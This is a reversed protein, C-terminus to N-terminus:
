HRTAHQSEEEAESVDSQSKVIQEMVFVSSAAELITLSSVTDQGYVKLLTAIHVALDRGAVREPMTDFNQLLWDHLQAHRKRKFPWFNV